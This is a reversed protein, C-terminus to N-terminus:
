KKHHKKPRQKKVEVSTDSPSTSQAGIRLREFQAQLSPVVTRSKAALAKEALHESDESTSTIPPLLQHESFSQAKIRPLSSPISISTTTGSISTPSNPMSRSLPRAIEDESILPKHPSSPQSQSNRITFMLRPSPIFEVVGHKPPEFANRAQLVEKYIPSERGSLPLMRSLSLGLRTYITTRDVLLEQILTSCFQKLTIKCLKEALARDGSELDFFSLLFPSIAVKETEGMHIQIMNQIADCCATKRAQTANSIFPLLYESRYQELEPNHFRNVCTTQVDSISQWSWYPTKFLSIIAENINRLLESVLSQDHYYAEDKPIHGEQAAVTLRSLRTILEVHIAELEEKQITMKEQSGSM